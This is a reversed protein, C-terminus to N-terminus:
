PLGLKLNDHNRIVDLVIDRADSPPAAGALDAVEALYANWARRSGWLVLEEVRARESEESGDPRLAAVAGPLM